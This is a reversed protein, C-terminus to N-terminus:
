AFQPKALGLWAAAILLFWICVVQPRARNLIDAVAIEASNQGASQLRALAPGLGALSRRILLGLLICAALVLCKLGLFRPLFGSQVFSQFALFLLSTIALWRVALDTQKWTKPAAGHKLHVAWTLFLWALSAIWVIALLAMGASMWGRAEALSLGTPLSLILATRPAMDVDGVIKAALLRKEPSIGSKILFRSTYFAGLDGGLWYVFVLIHLLAIFVPYSM